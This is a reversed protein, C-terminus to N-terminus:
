RELSTRELTNYLHKSVDIVDRLKGNKNYAFHFDGSTKPCCNKQNWGCQDCSCGIFPDDAISIDKGAKYENIYQMQRPPGELDVENIVFVHAHPDIENIEKEYKRYKPILM